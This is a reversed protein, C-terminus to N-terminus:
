APGELAEDVMGRWCQAASSSEPNPHNPLSRELAHQIAGAKIMEMTPERASKLAARARFLWMAKEHRWKEEKYFDSLRVNNAEADCMGRAIQEIM